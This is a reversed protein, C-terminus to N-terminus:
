KGELRVVEVSRRDPSLGCSVAAGPRLDERRGAGAATRVRLHPSLRLVKDGEPDELVLRGQAEDFAKVTRKGLTPMEVALHAVKKTDGETWVYVRQGRAVEDLTLERFPRANDLLEFSPDRNFALSRLVSHDGDLSRYFLNVTRKERDVDILYASAKHLRTDAAVDKGARLELVAKRDPSFAVLTPAGLRLDKLQAPQHDLVIRTEAPIPVAREGLRTKLLVAPGEVAVRTLTGYLTPPALRIAVVDAAAITLQVRQDAQLDTLKLPKGAADTVPLDPRALNFTKVQVARAGGVVLTVTGVAADVEQVVGKVEQGAPALAPAPPACVCLFSLCFAVSVPMATGEPLTTASAYPSDLLAAKVAHVLGRASGRGAVATRLPDEHM